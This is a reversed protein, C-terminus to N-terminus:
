SRKSFRLAPLLGNMMGAIATVAASVPPRDFGAAVADCFQSSREILSLEVHPLDSRRRILPDQLMLRQLLRSTSMFADVAYRSLPVGSAPESFSM